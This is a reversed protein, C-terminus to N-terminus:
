DSFEMDRYPRGHCEALRSALGGVHSELRHGDPALFYFSDGESTNDKWAEVHRAILRERLAAFDDQGVSFACHTYDRESSAQRRESM